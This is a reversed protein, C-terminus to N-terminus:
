SQRHNARDLAPVCPFLRCFQVTYAETRHTSEELEPTGLSVKSRCLEASIFFIRQFWVGFPQRVPNCLLRVDCQTFQPVPEGASLDPDADGRDETKQAM